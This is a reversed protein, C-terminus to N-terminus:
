LKWFVSPPTNWIQSNNAHFININCTYLECFFAPFNGEPFKPFKKRNVNIYRGWLTYYSALIYANFISQYLYSQASPVWIAVRTFNTTNEDIFSRVLVVQQLYKCCKNHQWYSETIPRGTEEIFHIESREPLSYCCNILGPKCFLSINTVHVM